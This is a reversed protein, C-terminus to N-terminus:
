NQTGNSGKEQSTNRNWSHGHFVNRLGKFHESLLRNQLSLCPASLGIKRAIEHLSVPMDDASLLAPNILWCLTLFRRGVQRELDGRLNASKNRFPQACAILIEHLVLPLRENVQQQVPQPTDEGNLAADVAAFDFDGELQQIANPHLRETVHIAENFVSM